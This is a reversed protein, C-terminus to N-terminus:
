RQVLAYTGAMGVSASVYNNPPDAAGKAVPAWSNGDYYALTFAGEDRGAALGDGYRVGINIENPFATWWDDNCPGAAIRFVLDGLLGGAPPPVSAPDVRVVEVKVGDQFVGVAVTGNPGDLTVSEGANLCRRAETASARPPSAEVYIQPAPPPNRDEGDDHDDSDNQNRGRRDQQDKRENENSQAVGRLNAAPGSAPGSRAVLEGGDDAASAAASTPSGAVSPAGALLVLLM